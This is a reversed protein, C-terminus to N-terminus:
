SKSSWLATAKGIVMGVLILQPCLFMIAVAGVSILMIIAVTFITEFM